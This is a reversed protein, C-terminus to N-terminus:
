PWNSGTNVSTFSNTTTGTAGLTQKLAGNLLQVGNANTVIASGYTNDVIVQVIRGATTNTCNPLTIVTNTGTVFVVTDSASFTYNTQTSLTKAYQAGTSYVHSVTNSGTFVNNAAAYVNGSTSSAGSLTVHSAYNTGYHVTVDSATPTTQTVMKMRTQVFVGTANTSTYRPNAIISDYLNTGGEPIYQTSGDWDGAGVAAITWNTGDYSIYSESKIAPGATGSGNAVSIYRLVTMGAEIDLFRNTTTSSAFYQGNTLGVYTRAGYAPAVTNYSFNTGYAYDSNTWAVAPYPTNYYTV